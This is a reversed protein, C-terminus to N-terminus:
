NARSHRQLFSIIAATDLEPSTRLVPDGTIRHGMGHNAAHTRVMAAM